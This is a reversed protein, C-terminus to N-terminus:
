FSGSLLLGARGAGTMASARLPSAHKRHVVLGVVSGTLMGLGLGLTFMSVAHGGLKVAIDPDSAQWTEARNVENFSRTTAFLSAFGGVAALGGIVGEAVLASRRKRPDRAVWTLGGVVLGVGGGLAALGTDRMRYPDRWDARCQAYPDEAGAETSPTCTYGDLAGIKVAGAATVAIGAVMVAGGAIGLGLKLKRVVEHPVQRDGAPLDTPTVNVPALALAFEVSSPAGQALEVRREQQQYGPGEVRLTWAGPDLELGVAAGKGSLTVPFRLEPRLDSSARAVHQAVVTASTSGDAPGRVTVRVTVTKRLAENLQAEAEKRDEPKLAGSALYERTYAVTHAYHGASSRSAAANFRFNPENPFDKVLGEFELAAEVYRGKEFFNAAKGVREDKSGIVAGSEQAAAGQVSQAYRAQASGAPPLSMMAATWVCALKM